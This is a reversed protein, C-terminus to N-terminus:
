PATRRVTLMAAENPERSSATCRHQSGGICWRLIINATVAGETTNRGVVTSM